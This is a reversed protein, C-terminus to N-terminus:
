YLAKPLRWGYKIGAARTLFAALMGAWLAYTPPLAFFIMICYLGAGVFAATAYIESESKLVLPIENCIIDRVIGGAVGTAVGLMVAILPSGSVTLAKEAGVVCFLALGAADAWILWKMRSELKPAVFFTLAAAALAAWISATNQVWFVPEGLVLDRLTGGGVAPMLALVMIGFVDMGKRVAALAGSIAFVFVGALDFFTLLQEM